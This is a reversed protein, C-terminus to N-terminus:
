VPLAVVADPEAWSTQSMRSKGTSGATGRNIWETQPRKWKTRGGEKNPARGAAGSLLRADNRRSGEIAVQKELLSRGCELRATQRVWEESAGAASNAM